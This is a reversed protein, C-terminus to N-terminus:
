KLYTNYFSVIEDMPIKTFDDYLDTHRANPVIILKKNDGVVDPIVKCFSHEFLGKDLNSVANKVDTKAASVGRQEYKTNAEMIRTKINGMGWETEM